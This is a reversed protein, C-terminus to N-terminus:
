RLRRDDNNGEILQWLRLPSLRRRWAARSARARNRQANTQVAPLEGRAFARRQRRNARPGAGVYFVTEYNPNTLDSILSRLENSPRGKRGFGLGNRHDNGM